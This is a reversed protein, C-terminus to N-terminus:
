FSLDILFFYFNAILFAQLNLKELDPNFGTLDNTRQVGLSLDPNFL